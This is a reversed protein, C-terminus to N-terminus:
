AYRSALVTIEAKGDIKGKIPLPKRLHISAYCIQFSNDYADALGVHRQAASDLGSTAPPYHRRTVPRPPPPSFWGTKPSSPEGSKRVGGRGSGAPDPASKSQLTGLHSSGACRPRWSAVRAPVLHAPVTNHATGRCRTSEAGPHYHRQLKVLLGRSLNPFPFRRGHPWPRFGYFRGM